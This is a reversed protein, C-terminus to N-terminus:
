RTLLAGLPRPTELAMAQNRQNRQKRRRATSGKHPSKRGLLVPKDGRLVM